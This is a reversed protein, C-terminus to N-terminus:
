VKCALCYEVFQELNTENINSLMDVLEQLQVADTKKYSKDIPFVQSYIKVKEDDKIKRKPLLGCTKLISDLDPSDFIPVIYPYFWEGKFMSKDKFDKAQQETCDDTDM